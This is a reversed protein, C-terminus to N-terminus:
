GVKFIKRFDTLLIQTHNSDSLFLPAESNYIFKYYLVKNYLIYNILLVYSSCHKPKWSAMKLSYSLLAKIYLQCHRLIVLDRKCKKFSIDYYLIYFISIFHLFVPVKCSCKRVNIIIDRQIRRLVLLTESLLQLCSWFVCKIILLKKGFIM